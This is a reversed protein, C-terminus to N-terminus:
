HIEFNFQPADSLKLAELIEKAVDLSLLVEQIIRDRLTYFSKLEIRRWFYRGGNGVRHVVIATVFDASKDAALLSDSGVVTRYSHKPSEHMFKVIEESVGHPDLKIGYSTNFEAEM